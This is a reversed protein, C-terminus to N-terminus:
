TAIGTCSGPDLPGEPAHGTYIFGRLPLRIPADPTAGATDAARVAYGAMSARRFPPVGFSPVLTPGRARGAAADLPVREVREIPEGHVALIAQAEAITILRRDPRYPMLPAGGTGPPGARPAGAEGHRAAGRAR